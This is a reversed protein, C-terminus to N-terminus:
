ADGELRAVLRAKQEPTLTGLVAALDAVLGADPDEGGVAGQPPGLASRWESARRAM